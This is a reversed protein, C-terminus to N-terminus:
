HQESLLNIQYRVISVAAIAATEARLIWKGLSFIKYGAERAREIEGSEWGGEPGICLALPRSIVAPDFQFPNSANGCFLLKGLLDQEEAVLFDSFNLPQRILPAAHRRCQKAAEQVIRNWREMRAALKSETIRIDSRATKLPIFEDVGLETAKQLMWEFKTSKILAAALILRPPPQQSPLSQLERIFVESGHLEVEGVYGNGKGDFIEVLEGPKIRLVNRLHHAQDSPLTAIDERISDRPVYFRKRPTSLNDL